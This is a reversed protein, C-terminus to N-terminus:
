ELVSQTMKYQKQPPGNLPTRRLDLESRAYKAEDACNKVYTHLKPVSTAVNAKPVM